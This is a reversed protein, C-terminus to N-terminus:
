HQSCWARAVLIETVVSCGLMQWVRSRSKRFATQQASLHATLNHMLIHMGSLMLREKCSGKEKKRNMRALRTSCFFARPSCTPQWQKPSVVYKGSVHTTFFTFVPLNKWNEDGDWLHGTEKQKYAMKYFCIFLQQMHLYISDATCCHSWIENLRADRWRKKKKWHYM